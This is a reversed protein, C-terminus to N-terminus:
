AHRAPYIRQLFELVLPAYADNADGTLMHGIGPAVRTEVHPAISLFHAVHEPRVVTSDGARIMLTPTRLAAASRELLALQNPGKVFRDEVFRPDWRWFFRGDEERMNGRLREPRPPRGHAALASLTAAAAELSDFGAVSAHFFDRMDDAVDEDIRPTVDALVVAAIRDPHTTAMLLSARGGLSAGVLAARGGLQPIIAAFDRVYSDFSYDGEPSWDSSGHGRLDLSVAHYGAEAMTRATAGWASRSQGGGHAFLIAPSGPEGWSDAVITLGDGQLRLTEPQSTMPM